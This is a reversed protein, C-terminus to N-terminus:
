DSVQVIMEIELPINRPLESVGIASRAHKGKDGFVEVLVESAANLVEPQQGFGPASAVFGTVKVVREINDLDGVAVKLTALLNLMSIRAAERGEELTLDGGLKGQYAFDGERRCGMGSTFILDGTRVFPVYVALPEPPDPLELLKKKLIEETKM